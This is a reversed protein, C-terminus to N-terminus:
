RDFVQIHLDKPKLGLKKAYRDTLVKISENPRITVGFPVQDVPSWHGKLPHGKDLGVKQYLFGARWLETEKDPAKVLEKDRLMAPGLGAKSLGTGRPPLLGYAKEGMQKLLEEAKEPGFHTILRERDDKPQAKVKTSGKAMPTRKIVHERAVKGIESPPAKKRVDTIGMVQGDKRVNITFTNGKWNFFYTFGGDPHAKMRTSKLGNGLDVSVALSEGQKLPCEPNPGSGDRPGRRPGAPQATAKSVAVMTPVTLSYFPGQGMSRLLKAGKKADDETHFRVYKLKDFNDLHPGNKINAKKLIGTIKDYDGWYPRAIEVIWAGATVVRAKTKKFGGLAKIAEPVFKFERDPEGEQKLIVRDRAAAMGGKHIVHIVAGKEQNVLITERGTSKKRKWDKGYLFEDMKSGGASKVKRAGKVLMAEVGEADMPAEVEEYAPVVDGPKIGEPILPAVADEPLPISRKFGIKNMVTQALNQEDLSRLIDCLTQAFMERGGMAWGSHQFDWWDEHKNNVQSTKKGILKQEAELIRKMLKQLKKLYGTGEEMIEIAQMRKQVEERWAGPDEEYDPDPAAQVGRSAAAVAAKVASRAEQEKILREAEQPAIGFRDILQRKLTM